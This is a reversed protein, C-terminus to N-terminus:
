ERYMVYNIYIKAYIVFARTERLDAVVRRDDGGFVVRFGHLFPQLAMDRNGAEYRCLDRVSGYLFRRCYSSGFTKEM